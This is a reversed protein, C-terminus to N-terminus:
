KKGEGLSRKLANFHTLLQRESKVDPNLRWEYLFNPNLDVKLDNDIIDWNCLITKILKNYMRDSLIPDGNLAGYSSLHYWDISKNPDREIIELCEIDYEPM